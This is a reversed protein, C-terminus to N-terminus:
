PGNLNKIKSDSKQGLSVNFNNTVMVNLNHRKFFVQRIASVGTTLKMIMKRAYSVAMAFYTM